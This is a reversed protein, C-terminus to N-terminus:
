LILNAINGFYWPLFMPSLTVYGHVFKYYLPNEKCLSHVKSVDSKKIGRIEYKKAISCIDM